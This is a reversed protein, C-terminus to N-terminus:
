LLLAYLTYYLLDGLWGYWPSVLISKIPCELIFFPPLIIYHYLRMM